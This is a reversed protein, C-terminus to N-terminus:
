GSHAEHSFSRAQTSVMGIRSLAANQSPDDKKARWTPYTYSVLDVEQANRGTREFYSLIQRARALKPAWESEGLRILLENHQRLAGRGSVRVSVMGHPDLYLRRLQWFPAGASGTGKSETTKANEVTTGSALANDVRLAKALELARGWWKATLVKGTQPKFLKPATLAYLHADEPKATRYPMGTEDVVWWKQGEGVLLVPRREQVVLKLRPPWGAERVVHASAVSPLARVRKEVSERNARFFNQGVLSNTIGEVQAIPTEDVGELRVTKVAFQPASLAAVGCYGIFLVLATGLFSVIFKSARSKQRGRRVPKDGTLDEGRVANGTLEYRERELPKVQHRRLQHPRVQHHKLEHRRPSHQRTHLKPRVYPAFPDDAAVEHEEARPADEVLSLEPATDPLAGFREEPTLLRRSSSSQSHSSPKSRPSPQSM